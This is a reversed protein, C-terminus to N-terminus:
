EEVSHAFTQAGYTLTNAIGAFVLLNDFGGFFSRRFIGSVGLGERSLKPFPSGEVFFPEM